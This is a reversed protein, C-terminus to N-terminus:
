ELEKEMQRKFEEMEEPTLRQGSELKASLSGPAAGTDEAENLFPVAAAADNTALASIGAIAPGILPIGMAVKKGLKGAIKGFRKTGKGSLMDARKQEKMLEKYRLKEEDLDYLTPVEEAVDKAGRAAKADWVKEPLDKPSAPNLLREGRERLMRDTREQDLMRAKNTDYKGTELQKEKLAALYEAEEDPTLKGVLLKNKLEEFKAM